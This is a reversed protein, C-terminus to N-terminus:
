KAMFLTTLRFRNDLPFCGSKTTRYGHGFREGCDEGRVQKSVEDELRVPHRPPLPPDRDQRQM